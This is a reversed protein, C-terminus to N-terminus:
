LKYFSILTQLIFNSNTQRRHYVTCIKFYIFPDHKGPLFVSHGCRPIFKSDCNECWTAPFIRCVHVCIVYILASFSVIECHIIYSITTYVFHCLFFLMKRYGAWLLNLSYNPFSLPGAVRMVPTNCILSHCSFIFYLYLFTYMRLISFYSALEWISKKGSFRKVGRLM